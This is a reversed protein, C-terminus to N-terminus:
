EIFIGAYCAILLTRLYYLFVALQGFFAQLLVFRKPRDNVSILPHNLFSPFVSLHNHDVRILWSFDANIMVIQAM